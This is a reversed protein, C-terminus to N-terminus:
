SLSQSLQNGIIIGLNQRSKFQLDLQPGFSVEDGVLHSEIPYISMDYGHNEDSMFGISEESQFYDGYTEEYEPYDERNLQNNNYITEDGFVDDSLPQVPSRSKHDTSVIPCEYTDLYYNWSLRKQRNAGLFAEPVHEAGGDSEYWEDAMRTLSSGLPSDEESIGNRLVENIM